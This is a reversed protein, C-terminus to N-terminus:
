KLPYSKISEPKLACFSPPSLKDKFVVLTKCAAGVASPAIIAEFGVNRAERAIGQPISFDNDRVLDDQTIGMKRLIEESILDLCREIKIHFSAVVQSLLRDKHGRIQRLKEMYSCEPSSSLYIVGFENRPNYRGGLLFSPGIDDITVAYGENVM